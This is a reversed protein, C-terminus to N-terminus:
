AGGHKTIVLANEVIKEVIEQKKEERIKQHEYRYIIYDKVVGFYGREMLAHEVLDQIDEVSPVFATNGFKLDITEVVVRTIDRADAEHSDGLVAAFAKQVAITIKQPDFDAIESNRKKIKQTIAM